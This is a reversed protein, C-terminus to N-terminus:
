IIHSLRQLTSGTWRVGKGATDLAWAAPTLVLRVAKGATSAIHPLAGAIINEGGECEHKVCVAVCKLANKASMDGAQADKKLKQLEALATPDKACVKKAFTSAARHFSPHMKLHKYFNSM